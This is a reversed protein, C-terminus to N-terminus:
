FHQKDQFKSPVVYRVEVPGVDVAEMGHYLVNSFVFTWECYAFFSYVSVGDSNGDGDGDGDGDVMAMAMATRMWLAMGMGVGMAMAMGNGM